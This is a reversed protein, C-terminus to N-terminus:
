CVSSFVRRQGKVGLLSIESLSAGSLINAAYSLRVASCVSRIAIFSGEVEMKGCLDLVRERTESLLSLPRKELDHADSGIFDSRGRELMMEATAQARRGFRGLLSGPNIQLLLDQQHLRDIQEPHALIPKFGDSRLEFYAQELGPSIAGTAFRDFRLAGRGPSGLAM